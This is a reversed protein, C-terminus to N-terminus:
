SSCEVIKRRFQVVEVKLIGAPPISYFRILSLQSPSTWFFIFFRCGDAQHESLHLSAVIDPGHIKITIGISESFLFIFSRSQWFSTTQPRALYSTQTGICFLYYSLDVM